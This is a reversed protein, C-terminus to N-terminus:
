RVVLEGLFNVNIDASTEAGDNSFVLTYKGSKARTPKKFNFTFDEGDIELDYESPPVEEGRSNLIRATLEPAGPLKRFVIFLTFVGLIRM